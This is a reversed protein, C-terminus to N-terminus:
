CSDEDVEEDQDIGIDPNYPHAPVHKMMVQDWSPRWKRGANGLEPYLIFMRGWRKANMSTVLATWAEELSASEYYALIRKCLLRFALGAVKDMPNTSVRNQMDGLADFGYKMLTRDMSQLQKHFRTLLETEYKGDKDEAHMPGDPTDGAFMRSEGVEQLTWARRFWSRDSELDGEKLSLPRGLGSLYIVVHAWAYVNGITPVDLKWEEMRMDERQGGKQRLCLVDLWAYEVGPSINLMEICVLNLSTDKPIPVPWEYRNIPTGVDVRDKEDMWAHSMPLLSWRSVRRPQPQYPCVIQNGVLAKRCREWHEEEWKHLRDQITSWNGTYWIRRLCSYATGFDWNEAICEELLSSLSPTDLSHSTRLTTNLQDLLGGIGLTACPTDALRSSIVPKRDTY